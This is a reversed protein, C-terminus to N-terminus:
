VTRERSFSPTEATMMSSLVPSFFFESNPVSTFCVWSLMSANLALIEAPFRACFDESKIIIALISLRIRSRPISSARSRAKAKTWAPASPM